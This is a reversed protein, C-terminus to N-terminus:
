GHQEEVEEQPVIDIHDVHDIRPKKEGIDEGSQPDGPRKTMEPFFGYSDDMFIVHFDPWLCTVEFHSPFIM